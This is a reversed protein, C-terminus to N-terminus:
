FDELEIPVVPNWVYSPQFWHNEEQNWGTVFDLHASEVWFIDSPAEDKSSYVRVLMYYQQDCMGIIQVMDHERLAQGKEQDWPHLYFDEERDKPNARYGSLAIPGIRTQVWLKRRQFLVTKSQANKRYLTLDIKERQYM